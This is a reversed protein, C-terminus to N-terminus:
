ASRKFKIVLDGATPGTVNVDGSNGEPISVPSAESAAAVDVGGITIATVAGTSFTEDVGTVQVGKIVPFPRDLNGDGDFNIVYENNLGETKVVGESGGIQRAGYHNNVTSTVNSGDAKGFASTEFGM